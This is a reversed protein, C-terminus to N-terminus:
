HQLRPAEAERMWRGESSGAFGSVPSEMLAQAIKNKSNLTTRNYGLDVLARMGIVDFAGEYVVSGVDIVHNCWM